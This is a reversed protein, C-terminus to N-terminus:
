WHKFLMYETEMLIIIKRRTRVEATFPVIRTDIFLYFIYSVPITM